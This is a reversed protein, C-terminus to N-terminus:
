SGRVSAAGDRKVITGTAEQDGARVTVRFRQAGDDQKCTGQYTGTAQQWYSVAILDPATTQTGDIVKAAIPTVWSRYLEQYASATGCELYPMAKVNETATSLAIQLEQQTRANESSTVAIMLGTASALTLPAMVAVGVLVEVLSVGSQGRQAVRESLALLINV